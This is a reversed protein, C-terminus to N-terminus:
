YFGTKHTHSPTNLTQTSVSPGVTIRRKRKYPSHGATGKAEGNAEGNAEGEEEEEEGDEKMDKFAKGAGFNSYKKRLPGRVPEVTQKEYSTITLSEYRRPVNRFEGQEHDRVDEPKKYVEKVYNKYDDDDFHKGDKTLNEKDVYDKVSGDYSLQDEDIRYPAVDGGTMQMKGLKDESLQVVIQPTPGVPPRTKSAVKAPPKYQSPYIVYDKDVGPYDDFRKYYANVSRHEPTMDYISLDAWTVDGDGSEDDSLTPKVPPFPETMMLSDGTQVEDCPNIEIATVQTEIERAEVQETCHYPASYECNEKLIHGKLTHEQGDNYNIPAAQQTSRKFPELLLLSSGTQADSSPCIDEASVQMDFDRLPRQKRKIQCECMAVQDERVIHGTYTKYLGSDGVQSGASPCVDGINLQVGCEAYQPIVRPRPPDCSCPNWLKHGKLHTREALSRQPLLNKRLALSSGTQAVESVNIDTPEVQNQFDDFVKESADGPKAPECDPCSGRFTKKNPSNPRSRRSSKAKRSEAPTQETPIQDIDQLTADDVDSLKGTSNNNSDYSIFDKSRTSINSLQWKLDRHHLSRSNFSTDQLINKSLNETQPNMHCPSNSSNSGMRVVKYGTETTVRDHSVLEFHDCLYDPEKCCASTPSSEISHINNNNNNEYTVNRLHLSRWKSTNFSGDNSEMTFNNDAIHLSHSGSKFGASTNSSNNSGDGEQLPGFIQEISRTKGSGILIVDGVLQVYDKNFWQPEKDKAVDVVVKSIGTPEGVDNQIPKVAEQIRKITKKRKGPKTQVNAKSAKLTGNELVLNQTKPDKTSFCETECILRRTGESPYFGDKEGLYIRKKLSAIEFDGRFEPQLPNPRTHITHVIMNEEPSQVTIQRTVEPVYTSSLNYEEQFAHLRLPFEKKLIKPLYDPVNLAAIDIELIKPPSKLDKNEKHDKAKAMLKSATEQLSIGRPKSTYTAAAHSHKTVDKDDQDCPCQEDCTMPKPSFKQFSQCRESDESTKPLDSKKNESGNKQCEQHHNENDRDKQDIEKHDKEKQCVGKMGEKCFVSKNCRHTSKSPMQKAAPQYYRNKFQEGDKDKESPCNQQRKFHLATLEPTPLGGRTGTTESPLCEEHSQDRILNNTSYNCNDHYSIAEQNAYLPKAKRGITQSNNSSSNCSPDHDRWTKKSEKTVCFTDSGDPKLTESATEKLYNLCDKGVPSFILQEPIKKSDVTGLFNGNNNQNSILAANRNFPDSKVEKNRYAIDGCSFQNNNTDAPIELLTGSFSKLGRNLETSKITLEERPPRAECAQHTKKECTIRTDGDHSMSTPKVKFVFDGMTCEVSEQNLNDECMNLVKDSLEEILVPSPEVNPQENQDPNLDEQAGAKKRKKIDDLSVLGKDSNKHNQEDLIREINLAVRKLESIYSSAIFIAAEMNSKGDKDLHNCVIEVKTEVQANNSGVHTHSEVRQLTTKQEAQIENDCEKVGQNTQADSGQVGPDGVSQIDKLGEKSINCNFSGTPELSVCVPLHLVEEPMPITPHECNNHSHTPPAGPIQISTVDLSSQSKGDAQIDLNSHHQTAGNELSLENLFGESRIPMFYIDSEARFRAQIDEGISDEDEKKSSDVSQFIQM